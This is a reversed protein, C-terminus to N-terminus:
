VAEQSRLDGEHVFHRVETFGHSCIYIFHPDTDTGVASIQVLRTNTEACARALASVADVHVIQLKDSITSQLAGACNVVWDDSVLLGFWDETHQLKALDEYVWDLQSLVRQATDRCRGLGLVTHGEAILGRSVAAGILGYAGLVLVRQREPQPSSSAM